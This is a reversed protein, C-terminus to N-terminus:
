IESRERIVKNRFYHESDFSGIKMDRSGCSAEEFARCGADPHIGKRFSSWTSRGSRITTDRLWFRPM